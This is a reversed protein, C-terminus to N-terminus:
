KGKYINVANKGIIKLLTSTTGILEPSLVIRAAVSLQGFIADIPTGDETSLEYNIVEGFTSKLQNGFVGKDGVGPLNEVTIYFRIEASDLMLATGSVRYDGNVEGTYPIRNSAKASEILDKDSRDALKRLATSMDDKDGHYYVEIKDLTGKYKAKPAKNGLRKLTELVDDDLLGSANTVEDEIICLYDKPTLQTGPTVCRGVGQNFNVVVSRIKTTKSNLKQALAATISSSDEHTQSSEFLVTKVTLSNRWIVAKTNLFDPEFFGTNYALNDGKSFKSGIKLLTAIDHPYNSGEASGYQRGLNVGRKTGDKYTVIIGKDSLSTVVGDDEAAFAFMASTRQPVIEEYGTRVMPQTYGDCSITHSQQVSIFNVRKSDDNASGPSLIASTSLLSTAGNKDFDYKETTGRISTFLPNASLFTNIAVDSSDVTSESITGMDNEHYVRSDKTMADKNRGGEGTYTVAEAQKLNEIPNIDAVLMNSSDQAINKWVAYPNLEIAARGRIHRGKYDRISAVLERYVAGSFREYGKIRMYRMDQADPHYENVLLGSARLLLGKFTVPEKMDELISKTIPDIFMQDLLDIERLYRSGVKSSDLLNFYVDKSNFEEVDFSKILKDYNNLGGLILNAAVDKRNFIYKINKFALVWQDKNLSVRKGAEITDYQVDLLTLLNNFGLMYGLVLGLPIDKSFVKLVSYDVPVKTQDLNAIDYISGIPILEKNKYIFFNNEYDVVVPEKNPSIAILRYADGELAKLPAEEMLKLRDRSDLYFDYGSITISKFHMSLASYIKPAKFLNNFVNTAGLNSVHTKEPSLGLEYLRKVLWATSDDAVKVSRNVFVKGYYSTLSVSSNNIKRIPLV